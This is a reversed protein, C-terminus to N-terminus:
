CREGVDHVIGMVYVFSYDVSEGGMWLFTGGDICNADLIFVLLIRGLLGLMLRLRGVGVIFVIRGMVGRMIGFSLM